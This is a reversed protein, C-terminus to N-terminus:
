HNNLYWEIVASAYLVAYQRKKIKDHKAKQELIIKTESLLRNPDKYVVDKVEQYIDRTKKYDEYEDFSGMAYIILSEVDYRNYSHPNDFDNLATNDAYDLAIIKYKGFIPDKFFMNNDLKYCGMKEYISKIAMIIISWFICETSYDANLIGEAIWEDMKADFVPRVDKLLADTHKDLRFLEEDDILGQYWAKFSEETIKPNDECFSQLALQVSTIYDEEYQQPTMGNEEDNRLLDGYRVCTQSFTEDSDSIIEVGCINNIDKKTLLSPKKMKTKM